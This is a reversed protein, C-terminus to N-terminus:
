NGHENMNETVFLSVDGGVCRAPCRNVYNLWDLGGYYWEYALGVFLVIFFLLLYVSVFPITLILCIEVDFVLFVVGVLFFRMCFPLRATGNTDFGCEFPRSKEKDCTNNYNM